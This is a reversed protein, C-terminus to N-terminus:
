DRLASAIEARQRAEIAVLKANLAAMTEHLTSWNVIVTTDAPANVTVDPASASVVPVAGGAQFSGGWDGSASGQGGYPSTLAPPKITPLSPPTPAWSGSAGGQAGPVTIGLGKKAWEPMWATLSDWAGRFWEVVGGWASRIGEAFSEVM